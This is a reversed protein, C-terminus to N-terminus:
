KRESESDGALSAPPLTWGRVGPIRLALQQALLTARLNAELRPCQRERTPPALVVKLLMACKNKTQEIKVAAHKAQIPLFGRKSSMNTPLPQARRHPPPALLNSGPTQNHHIDTPAPVVWPHQVAKQKIKDTRGGAHLAPQATGIEGPTPTPLTPLAHSQHPPAHQKTESNYM